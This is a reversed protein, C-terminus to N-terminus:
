RWVLDQRVTAASTRDWGKELTPAGEGFRLLYGLRADGFGLDCQFMFPESPGPILRTRSIVEALVAEAVVEPGLHALRPSIEEDPLGAAVLVAEITRDASM